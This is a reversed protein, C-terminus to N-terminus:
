PSSFMYRGLAGVFRPTSLSLSFSAQSLGCPMHFLRVIRSFRGACLLPPFALHPAGGRLTEASASNGLQPPLFLEWSCRGFSVSQKCAVSRRTTRPAAPSSAAAESDPHACMQMKALNLGCRSPRFSHPGVERAGCSAQGAAPVGLRRLLPGGESYMREPSAAHRISRISGSGLIWQEFSILSIQGACCQQVRPTLVRARQIRSGSRLVRRAWARSRVSSIRSCVVRPMAVPCGM